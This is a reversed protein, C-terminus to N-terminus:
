DETAFHQQLWGVPDHQMQRDLRSDWNFRLCDWYALDTAHPWKVEKVRVIVGPLNTTAVVMMGREGWAEPWDAVMRQVVSLAEVPGRGPIGVVLRPPTEVPVSSPDLLSLEGLEQHQNMAEIVLEERGCVMLLPANALAATESESGTM